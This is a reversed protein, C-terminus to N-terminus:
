QGERVPDPTATDPFLVDKVIEAVFESDQHPLVEHESATIVWGVRLDSLRYLLFADALDLTKPVVGRHCDICAIVFVVLNLLRILQFVVVFVLVWLVPQLCVERRAVNILLYPRTRLTELRLVHQCSKLEQRVDYGSMRWM